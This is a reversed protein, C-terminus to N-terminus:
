KIVEFITGGGLCIEGDYFVCEQGPTTAKAKDINVVEITTRDTFRVKAKIDKQRYRYKVSLERYEEFYDNNIFNVDKVITKSSYLYNSEDGQVVYLEKKDISKDVVFWSGTAHNKIGGIGLGKRQGLTYYMVGEHRGVIDGNRIDIINGPQAPLYNSLFKQFNREGIFCIGTSDKKEAVPLELDKAIQRVETKTLHGIPFLANNLMHQTLLCLFYTQDKNEDIGRLMVSTGDDKHIVRAYHGTAIYDAGQEKAFKLFADFKIYKNCLIDPNPTRGNKYEELFYTFVHDWYEQIFDVRLLPIGLKDAVLKADNYDKEQPCIDDELTPNGLIDNNTYADWNRMFAAIVEHGEKKLLYAAVASDVGGSLGIVVKAM